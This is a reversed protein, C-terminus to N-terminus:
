NIVALEQTSTIVIHVYIYLKCPFQKHPVEVNIMGSFVTTQNRPQTIQHKHEFIQLIIVKLFYLFRTNM